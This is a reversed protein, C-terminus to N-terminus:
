TPLWTSIRFPPLRPAQWKAASSALSTPAWRLATWPKTAWSSTPLGKLRRTQMPTTGVTIHTAMWIPERGQERETGVLNYDHACSLLTLATMGLLTLKSLISKM